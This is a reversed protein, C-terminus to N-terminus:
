LKSRLHELWKSQPTKLDLHKNALTEFLNSKINLYKPDESLNNIQNKDNDRSYLVESGDHRIGYWYMRTVVGVIGSESPTNIPEVLYINDSNIKDQKNSGIIFSCDRGEFRTTTEINLLSLLTPAFDISSWLFDNPINIKVNKSPKIVMPVKYPPEHMMAKGMQGHEGMYEGHDSSFVILTDDYLKLKKLKNVIKGVNDDINKIMGCYQSKRMKLRQHNLRENRPKFFDRSHDEFSDPITMSNMDYMSKYPERNQYPPHPDPYSIMLCFPKSNQEEIYNIAKSTLWDTTYSTEDGIAESMIPQDNATFNNKKSTIDTISKFHGRNFMLLNNKFGMGRSEHVWGPRRNGDLHYKGIFITNYGANSLVHAFTTKSQDIPIHNDFAGHSHPYLGTLFTGRSPTCPNCNAFYNNFAIGDKAILDLHTTKLFSQQNYTSLTWYAQQDTFLIIINPKKVLKSRKTQKEDWRQDSDQITFGEM